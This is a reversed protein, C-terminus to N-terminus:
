PRVRHGCFRCQWDYERDRALAPVLVLAQRADCRPCRLREALELQRERQKSKASVDLKM